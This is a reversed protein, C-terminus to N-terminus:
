DQALLRMIETADDVKDLNAVLEIVREVNEPRVPRHSFSVCDRFKAEVDSQSVPNRPDGPIATVTKKYSAGNRGKIEVATRNIEPDVVYSVRQAMALVDPAVLADDTYDRLTVGGTQAAIAVTFPISYKADISSPPRRKSEIPDWLLMNTRPPVSILISEIQEATLNNESKLQLIGAVPPRTGACAPWVKFTHSDLLAFREGLDSALARWDPQPVKVYNSFLGYRGEFIEKDGTMGRQALLAAAVAGQGTFGGQMGRVETAEGSAMERTGSLQNYAIGLANEMQDTDLGLLRGATAAGCIFGFLQTGFWDETLMASSGMRVAIDYGAAIATLLEKGSVGGLREAIAFAVPITTTGPHVPGVATDEYDLMHGMSGNMFAAAITPAKGGFGLISAEPKGGLAAVYDHVSKAEEALGSAGIIVALSDLVCQKLRGVV